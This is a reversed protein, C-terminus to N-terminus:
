LLQRLLNLLINGATKIKESILILDVPTNYHGDLQAAESYMAATPLAPNRSVEYHGSLRIGRAFVQSYTRPERKQFPQHM